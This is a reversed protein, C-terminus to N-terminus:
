KAGGIPSVKVEGHLEITVRYHERGGRGGLMQLETIVGRACSVESDLDALVFLGFHGLKGRVLTEDKQVSVDATLKIPQAAPGCLGTIQEPDSVGFTTGAQAVDPM